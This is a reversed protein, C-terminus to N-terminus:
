DSNQLGAVCRYPGPVFATRVGNGNQTVAFYAFTSAYTIDAVDFTWEGATAITTGPVRAFASLEGASPLRRQLNGCVNSADGVTAPARSTTEICVSVFRTTGSPCTLAAPEGRDGKDGKDGKPGQPLQGEKFDAALLSGNLVHGSRVANPALQRAKVANRQIQPTGVSNRPVLQNWAAEGIPTSGFVAILLAAISITLSAHRRMQSEQSLSSERTPQLMVEFGLLRLRPLASGSSLDTGISRSVRM